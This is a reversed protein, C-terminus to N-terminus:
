STEFNGLMEESEQAPPKQQWGATSEHYGRRHRSLPSIDFNYQLKFIYVVYVLQETDLLQLIALLLNLITVRLVDITIIGQLPM